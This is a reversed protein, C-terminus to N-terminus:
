YKKHITLLIREMEKKIGGSSGPYNNNMYSFLLLKGSETILMGSLNHNNSLTGTKGYIYPEEAIYYNKLTGAHGGIAVISMLRDTGYLRILEQWLKVVSRPTVLNYRSLGSGDVWNVPDPLIANLSTSISDIALNTRLTDTLQGAVLLLLQEAIFNDSEQMMHKYVTDVPLSYFITTEPSRAERNIVVTNKLTDELLNVLTKDSLHFPRVRECDSCDGLTVHFLNGPEERKVAFKEGTEVDLSDAFLEPSLYIENNISDKEFVVVNGYVPMASREPSYSWAYDEWSWGPGFRDEMFYATSIKVTDAASLFKHVKSEPLTHYLFSPDGTPWIQMTSGSDRRYELAPISDALTTAAAYLTLIKTNSAPTFYKDGQVSLIEKHAAPDYLYFGAHYQGTAAVEIISKRVPSCKISLFVTASFLFISINKM